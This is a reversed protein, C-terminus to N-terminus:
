PRKLYEVVMGRRVLEIRNYAGRGEVVTSALRVGWDGSIQYLTEGQINIIRNVLGKIQIKATGKNFDVELVEVKPVYIYNVFFTYAAGLTVIAAAIAATRLLLNKGKTLEIQTQPITRM